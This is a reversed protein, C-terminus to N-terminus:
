AERKRRSLVLACAVLAAGGVIAYALTNSRASAAAHEAEWQRYDAISMNMAKASDREAQTSSLIDHLERDVAPVAGAISVALIVALLFRM